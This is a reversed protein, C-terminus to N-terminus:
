EIRSKQLSFAVLLEAIHLDSSELAADFLDSTIGEGSYHQLLVEVMVASGKRIGMLVLVNSVPVKFSQLLAKLILASGKEIALAVVAPPVREDATEVSHISRNSSPEKLALTLLMQVNGSDVAAAIAYPGPVIGCNILVAAAVLSGERVALDLPNQGTNSTSTEDSNLVALLMRVSAVMGRKASLYVHAATPVFYGTEVVAEVIDNFGTCIASGLVIGEDDRMLDYASTGSTYGKLVTRLLGLNNSEIAATVGTLNPTAGCKILSNVVMLDEQRIAINLPAEALRPFTAILMWATQPNPKRVALFYDSTRPAAATTALIISLISVNDMDVASTLATQFYSLHKEYIASATCLADSSNHISTTQRKQFQHYAILKVLVSKNSLFVATTFTAENAQAGADLLTEFAATTGEHIAMNLAETAVAVPCAKLIMGLLEAGVGGMTFSFGSAARDNEPLSSKAAFLVDTATVMCRPCELLVRLCGLSRSDIAFSVSGPPANFGGSLLIELLQPSNQNISSAFAARTPVLHHDTVLYHVVNTHSGLVALHLSSPLILSSLSEELPSSELLLRVIGIMGDRASIEVCQQWVARSVGCPFRSLDEVLPVTPDLENSLNDMEAYPNRSACWTVLLRVLAVNQSKVCRRLTDRQLHPGVLNLLIESVELHGNECSILLAASLMSSFNPTLNWSASEAFSLLRLIFRTDCRCSVLKLLVPYLPHVSSSDRVFMPHRRMTTAFPHENSPFLADFVEFCGTRAADLLVNNTFPSVTDFDSTDFWAAVSLVLAVHMSDPSEISDDCDCERVCQRMFLASVPNNYGREKYGTHLLRLVAAGRESRFIRLSPVSLVELGSEHESGGNSYSLAREIVRTIFGASGWTVAHVDRCLLSVSLMFGYDIDPHAPVIWEIISGVIEPPLEM